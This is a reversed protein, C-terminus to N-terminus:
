PSLRAPYDTAPQKSQIRPPPSPRPSPHRTSDRLILETALLIRRPPHSDKNLRLSMLRVAEEGISKVPQRLTTVPVAAYRAIRADDIGIVKIREPVKAKVELLAAILQVAYRDNCCVVGDAKFKLLKRAFAGRSPADTLLVRDKNPLGAAKLAAEFGAIRGLTSSLSGYHGVYYINKAGASLLHDAQRFGANMNDIGVLDYPSSVPYAEVDRDILVVAIGAQALRRAVTRNREAASGDGLDDDPAFFVGRINQRQYHEILHDISADSGLANFESDSGWVLNLGYSRASQAIQSCIPIFFDSDGLGAILTAVYCDKAEQRPKLFTGAGIRRVIAGATELEAMAKIVTARTTAYRRVLQNDSPLQGSKDYKGAVIEARLTDAIERWLPKRTEGM